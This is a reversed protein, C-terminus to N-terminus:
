AGAAEIGEVYGGRCQGPISRRDLATVAADRPATLGHNGCWACVVEHEQVTAKRAVGGAGAGGRARVLARPVPRRSDFSLLAM